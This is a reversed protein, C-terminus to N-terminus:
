ILLEAELSLLINQIEIILIVWQFTCLTFMCEEQPESASTFGTRGLPGHISDSFPGEPPTRARSDQSHYGGCPGVAQISAMRLPVLLCSKWGSVRWGMRSHSELLM